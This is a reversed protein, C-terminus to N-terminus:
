RPPGPKEIRINAFNTLLKSFVFSCSGASFLDFVERLPIKEFAKTHVPSFVNYQNDRM